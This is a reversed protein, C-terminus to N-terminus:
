QAEYPVLIGADILKENLRVQLPTGGYSICSPDFIHFSFIADSGRVRGYWDRFRQFDNTSKQVTEHCRMCSQDSVAFYAGTYNKPIIHFDEKTTPAFAVKNSASVGWIQSRVPQFPTETLLKEVTAPKLPPLSEEFAVEDFVEVPHENRLRGVAGTREGKFYDIFAKASEDERGLQRVREVLDEPTPFPRYVNISWKEKGRVRVRLEFPFSYGEENVVNLIEGFVTGEPYVWRYTGGYTDHPLPERWWRIPKDPLVVFRITNANNTRDLGATTGWPFERNANGFPEAPKSASINYLPSHIGPLGSGWDQYAPPIVRDDYFIIDKTKLAGLWPDCTRPFFGMLREHTDDSVLRFPRQRPGADASVSLTLTILCASTLRNM